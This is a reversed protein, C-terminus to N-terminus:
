DNEANDNNRGIKKMEEVWEDSGPEVLKEVKVHVRMYDLRELAKVVEAVWESHQYVKWLEKDPLDVEKEYELTIKVKMKTM